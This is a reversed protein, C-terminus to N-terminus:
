GEDAQSIAEVRVRTHPQRHGKKARYRKKNKYRFIIKKKDRGHELIKASVVAGDVVPAGIATGEDSGLLLVRGLQVVEGEEAALRDITLVDGEQVRYQKGGSEVIAYV